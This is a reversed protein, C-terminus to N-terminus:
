HVTIIQLFVLEPDGTLPAYSGAVTLEISDFHLPDTLGVGFALGSQPEGLVPVVQQYTQALNFGIALMVLDHELFRAHITLRHHPLRHCSVSSVTNFFAGQPAKKM